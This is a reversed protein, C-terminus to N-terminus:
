IGKTSNPNDIVFDNIRVQLVLDVRPTDKSLEFTINNLNCRVVNKDSDFVALVNDVVRACSDTECIRCSNPTVLFKYLVCVQSICRLSVTCVEIITSIKSDVSKGGNWLLPHTNSLENPLPGILIAWWHLIILLRQSSGM